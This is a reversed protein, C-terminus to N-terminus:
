CGYMVIVDSSRWPMESWQFDNFLKSLSIDFLVDFNANIAKQVPFRNTISPNGDCLTTFTNEHQSAM